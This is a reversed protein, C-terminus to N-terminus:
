STLLVHTIPVDHVLRSTVRYSWTMALTVADCSVAAPSAHGSCFLRSGQDDRTQARSIRLNGVSDVLHVGAVRKIQM